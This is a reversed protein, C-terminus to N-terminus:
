LTLPRLTTLPQCGFSSSHRRKRDNHLPVSSQVWGLQQELAFSDKEINEQEQLAADEAGVHSYRFHDQESLIRRKVPSRVPETQVSKDCQRVRFKLTLNTSTSLAKADNERYEMYPSEGGPLYLLNGSESRRYAVREVTNNVHFTTGDAWHGDDKIPRFHTRASTLLDEDPEPLSNVKLSSRSEKRVGHPTNSAVSFFCDDTQPNHSYMSTSNSDIGSWNWPEDMFSDLWNVNYETKNKNSCEDANDEISILDIDWPILPSEDVISEQNSTDTAYGNDSTPLFITRTTYTPWLPESPISLSPAAWISATDRTNGPVTNWLAELSEFKAKLQALRLQDLEKEREREMLKAFGFSEKDESGQSEINVSMKTKKNRVSNNKNHLNIGYNKNNSNALNRDKQATSKKISQLAPFAAYYRLARDRPTLAELNTEPEDCTKMSEEQEDYSSGGELEKLKVCLEDVLADVGLKDAAASTLCQVVAQRQEGDGHTPLKAKSRARIRRGTDIEEEPPSLASDPRRLLSLAFRSYAVPDLGLADLRTELWQRLEEEARSGFVEGGGPSTAIGVLHLAPNRM